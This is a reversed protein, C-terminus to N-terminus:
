CDTTVAPFSRSKQKKAEKMTVNRKIRSLTRIIRAWTFHHGPLTVGPPTCTWWATNPRIKM